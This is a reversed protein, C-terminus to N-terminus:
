NYFYLIRIEGAAGLRNKVIANTGGDYVCLKADTDAADTNTSGAIKTCAGDNQVLWMGAEGNCSVFCIGSTADPLNVTGDDALSDNQYTFQYATGTNCNFSLFGSGSAMLPSNALGTSDNVHSPIYGDTLGTLKATVFTPSADTTVDQNIYSAAEVALAISNATLTFGAAGAAIATNAILAFTALDADLGLTSIAAAANADDILSRGFSTLDAEAWTNEATTYLTKDAASGLAAISTLTEGLLNAYTIKYNVSSHVVTLLDAANLSTIASLESIKPM